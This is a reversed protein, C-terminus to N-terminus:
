SVAVDVEVVWKNWISSETLLGEPGIFSLRLPGDSTLLKGDKAYALIATISQTATVPDNTTPDFTSYGTGNVVQGYLLPQPHNDSALVNVYYSNNPLGGALNALYSVSIGTYNGVAAITGHTNRGAMGSVSPLAAIDDKAFTITTGNAAKLTLTINDPLLTKIQIQAINKVGERRTLNSGTLTLPYNAGALTTGNGQNAVIINDNGQVRSGNFEMPYGDSGVVTVNYGLSLVGNSIKGSDVYYNILHYLTIGAWTSNSNTDNQTWTAPHQNAYAEFALNTMNVSTGGTYNLNWVVQPEPTPTPIPQTVPSTTPKTTPKSTPSVTPKATPTPSQTPNAPAPTPAPTPNTTQPVQLTPYVQWIVVATVVIIVVATVGLTKTSIIM